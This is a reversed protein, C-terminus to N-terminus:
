LRGGVGVGVGGGGWISRGEGLHALCTNANTRVRTCASAEREREREGDPAPATRHQATIRPWYVRCTSVRRSLEGSFPVHVSLEERKGRRRERKEEKKGMKSNAVTQTAFRLQAARSGGLPPSSAFRGKRKKKQQKKRISEGNPMMVVPCSSLETRTASLHTVRDM